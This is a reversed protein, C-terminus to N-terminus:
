LTRKHSADTLLKSLFFLHCNQLRLRIESQLRRCRNLRDFAICHLYKGDDSLLGVLSFTECPQAGAGLADHTGGSDELHSEGSGSASRFCAEGILDLDGRHDGRHISGRPPIDTHQIRTSVVGAAQTVLRIRLKVGGTIEWRAAGEMRAALGHLGLPSVLYGPPPI